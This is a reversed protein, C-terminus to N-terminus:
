ESSYQTTINATHSSAADHHLFVKSTDESYRRPVVVELIPRLDEEIYYKVNIKVKPPVRILNFTGRGSMAGVVMVKDSFRESKERVFEEMDKRSRSYCIRRSKKSDQTIFLAKDLTVMFESKKRSLHDLYLKRSMTKRIEKHHPKLAHVKTKKFTKLNLDEHIIRRVTTRSVQHKKTLQNQTPPNEKTADRSLKRILTPKRVKRPCYSKPQPLGLEM